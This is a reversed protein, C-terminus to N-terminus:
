STTVADQDRMAVWRLVTGGGFRPEVTCRGGLQEVRRAASVLRCGQNRPDSEDTGDHEVRLELTQKSVGINLWVERVDQQGTAHVLLESL